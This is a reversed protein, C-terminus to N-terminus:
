RSQDVYRSRSRFPIEDAVKRLGDVLRNAAEAWPEDPDKEAYICLTSLHWGSM